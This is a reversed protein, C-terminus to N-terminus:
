LAKSVMGRLLSILLNVLKLMLFLHILQISANMVFLRCFTATFPFSDFHCLTIDPIGKSNTKFMFSGGSKILDLINRNASSM